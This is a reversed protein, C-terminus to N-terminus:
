IDIFGCGRNHQSSSEATSNGSEDYGTLELVVAAVICKKDREYLFFSHRCGGRYSPNAHRPLSFPMRAIYAQFSVSTVGSQSMQIRAPQNQFNVSCAVM